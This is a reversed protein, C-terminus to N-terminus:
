EAQAPQRLSWHYILSKALAHIEFVSMAVHEERVPNASNAHPLRLGDSGLESKDIQWILMVNGKNSSHHM